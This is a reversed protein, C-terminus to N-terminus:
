LVATLQCIRPRPRPVQRLAAQAQSRCKRTCGVGDQWLAWSMSVVVAAPAVWACGDSVPSRWNGTARERQAVCRQQRHVWRPTTSALAVKTGGGCARARRRCMCLSIVTTAAVHVHHPLRCAPGTGPPCPTRAPQRGTRAGGVQSVQAGGAAAGHMGGEASRRANLAAARGQTVVLQETSAGPVPSTWAAM